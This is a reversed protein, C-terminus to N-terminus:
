PRGLRAGFEVETLRGAVTTAPLRWADAELTVIWRGPTQEPLRGLYDGDAQRALVAVLERTTREPHALRLTLTAPWAITAGPAADVTARVAGDGTVRVTAHVDAAGQSPTRAITQNILLGRKYYDQAVLGDDSKVAIWATVLSAVVVACPGAALLWPWPERHWAPSAREARSSSARRSM